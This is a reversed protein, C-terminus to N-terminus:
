TPHGTCRGLRAQPAEMLLHQRRVSELLRSLSTARKGLTLRVVSIALLVCPISTPSSVLAEQDKEPRVDPPLLTLEKRDQRALAELGIKGLEAKAIRYFGRPLLSNVDM